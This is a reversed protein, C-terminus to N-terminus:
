QGAGFAKCDDSSSGLSFLATVCSGKASAGGNKPAVNTDCYPAQTGCDLSTACPADPGGGTQCHNTGDCFAGLGCPASASCNEGTQGGAKCVAPATGHCYAGLPCVSGWSGCSGNIAVNIPATCELKSSGPSVPACVQSAGGEATAPSACDYNTSCKGAQPVSGLFVAQCAADIADLSPTMSGPPAVAPIPATTGSSSPAYAAQVVMICNEANAPTYARTGNMTAATAASM